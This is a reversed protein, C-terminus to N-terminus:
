RVSKKAADTFAMICQILEDKTLNSRHKKDLYITLINNLRYVLKGVKEFDAYDIKGDKAAVIFQNIVYM